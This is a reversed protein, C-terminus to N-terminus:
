YNQPWYKFQPAVCATPSCTSTLIIITSMGFATDSNTEFEVSVASDLGNSRAVTLYVTGATEEVTLSSLSRFVCVCM